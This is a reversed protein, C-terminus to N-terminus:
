MKTRYMFSLVFFSQQRRLSAFNSFDKTEYKMNEYYLWHKTHCISVIPSLHSVMLLPIPLIM